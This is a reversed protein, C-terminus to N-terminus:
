HFGTKSLKVKGDSFDLSHSGSYQNANRNLKAAISDMLNKEVKIKRNHPICSALTNTMAIFRRFHTKTFTNPRKGRAPSKHSDIVSEIYLERKAIGIKLQNLSAALSQRSIPKKDVQEFGHKANQLRVFHNYFAQNDKGPPSINFAKGTKLDEKPVLFHIELRGKDRHEVWLFNIRDEEKFPAFTKQFQDILEFKQERTLEEGERFSIVGSTYKQKRDINSIIQKTLEANGFLVQPKCGEHKAESLLYNTAEAGNNKGQNFIKILM